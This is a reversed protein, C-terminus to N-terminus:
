EEIEQWHAFDRFGNLRCVADLGEAWSEADKFIRLTDHPNPFVNVLDQVITWMRRSDGAEGYFRFLVCDLLMAAAAREWQAPIVRSPLFASKGLNCDVCATVLNEPDNNGGVAVPNVHDIHLRAEQATAGCYRCRYGDRELVAYRTRKSLPTRKM